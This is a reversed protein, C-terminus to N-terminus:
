QAEEPTVQVRLRLGSETIVTYYKLYNGESDTGQEIRAVKIALGGQALERELMGILAGQLMAAILHADDISPPAPPQQGTISAIAENVERRSPGPERFAPRGSM